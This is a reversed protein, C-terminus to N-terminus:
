VWQLREQGDDGSELLFVRLLKTGEDLLVKVVNMADFEALQFAHVREDLVSHLEHALPPFLDHSSLKM